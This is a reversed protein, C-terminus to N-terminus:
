WLGECEGCFRRGMEDIKYLVVGEGGLSEGADGVDARRAYDVLMEQDSRSRM